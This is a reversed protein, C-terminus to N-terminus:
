YKHVLADGWHSTLINKVRRMHMVNFIPYLNNHLIKVFSWLFFSLNALM